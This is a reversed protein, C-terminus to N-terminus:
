KPEGKIMYEIGEDVRYPLIVNEDNFLKKITQRNDVELSEFLRKHISPKIIKLLSAFFPVKILYIKKNLSNAILRCLETTSLPKDDSVLFIGGMQKEIINDLYFCLNGIYIMSRRNKINGFPLVPTKNILNILNKINAKVGHGYVIPTRIISIIFNEDQLELLKKEAELKSKGYNDQPHCLSNESYPKGTEEGYVKVTSMYVFQKVGSNKTKKALSISQFVNVDEYVDYGTEKMQHVIASLHVVTDIGNMDLTAFDDKRFSFTKIKFKDSFNEVFYSGVFGSAGTLLIKKMNSM